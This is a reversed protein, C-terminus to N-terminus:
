GILEVYIRETLRSIENADLFDGLRATLQFFLVARVDDQRAEVVWRLMDRPWQEATQRDTYGESASVIENNGAVLKTRFEGRHDMEPETFHAPM